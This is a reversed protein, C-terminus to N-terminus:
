MGIKSNSSQIWTFRFCDLAFDVNKLIINSFQQFSVLSVEFFLLQIMTSIKQELEAAVPNGATIGPVNAMPRPCEERFDTKNICWKVQKQFNQTTCRTHNFFTLLIRVLDVPWASKRIKTKNDHMFNM